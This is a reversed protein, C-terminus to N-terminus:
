QTKLAKMQAAMEREDTHNSNEFATIIRQQEAATKNQSIKKKAQLDTVRISFPVIGKLMKAKYDEPLEDWQTKYGQELHLIMDALTAYAADTGTIITAEGYAHVATYNWTPVNMKSDYHTPSIYAHPGSFMVLVPHDTLQKWQENAKAFHATLILQGDTESVTFPLQTATPYNNSVTVITAFPHTQMFQLVEARDPMANYKAIYM